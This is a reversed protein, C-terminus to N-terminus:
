GLPVLGYRDLQYTFIRNRGGTKAHYLAKDTHRIFRDLSDQPTPMIANVGLSMTVFPELESQEHPIRVLSFQRQIRQAVNQAGALDTQPLIMAFEEGGYRAVLDGPRKLASSLVQAVKQLCRDGAQHGYYDNYKKFTDVDGLILA